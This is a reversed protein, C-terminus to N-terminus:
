DDDEDVDIAEDYYDFMDETPLSRLNPNNEIFSVVEGVLHDLIRGYASYNNLGWLSTVLTQIEKNGHVILFRAACNCTEKGYGVGILDGDNFWRYGIRGTARVLEGALSDAKGIRPVLENFLADLKRDNETM